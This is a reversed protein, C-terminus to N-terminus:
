ANDDHFHVVSQAQYAETIDEQWSGLALGKAGLRRFEAFLTAWACLRCSLSTDREQLGFINQTLLLKAEPPAESLAEAKEVIGKHCSQEKQLIYSSRSLLHLLSSSSDRGKEQLGERDRYDAGAERSM